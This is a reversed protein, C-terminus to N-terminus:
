MWVMVRSTELIMYLIDITDYMIEMDSNVVPKCRHKPFIDLQLYPPAMDAMCYNSPSSAKRSGNLYM